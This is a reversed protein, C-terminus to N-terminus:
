HFKLNWLCCFSEEVASPRHSESLLSLLMVKFYVMVIKKLEKTTGSAKSLEGRAFWFVLLWLLKATM